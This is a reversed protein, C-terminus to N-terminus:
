SNLLLLSSFILAIPKLSASFAKSIKFLYDLSNHQNDTTVNVPYPVEVGDVNLSVLTTQHQHFHCSSPTSWWPLVILSNPTSSSEIKPLEITIPEIKNEIRLTLEVKTQNNGNIVNCPLMLKTTNYGDDANLKPM